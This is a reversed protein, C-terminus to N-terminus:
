QQVGLRDAFWDSMKAVAYAFHDYSCHLSGAADYVEFTVDPSTLADVFRRAGDIDMVIDDTGHMVFVPVDIREAVGRLNFRSLLERAAADGDAGLLWQLQAQLPPYFEYFDTLADLTGCWAAVARVRDDFAAVRPAYYGGLSVGACGIRAMDVDPRTSLHDLVAEAPVEYDYRSPLGKFRISSGRGPTDVVCVNLGRDVFESGGLFVLEEAWSDAGGLFLPLSEGDPLHGTFYAFGARHRVSLHDM